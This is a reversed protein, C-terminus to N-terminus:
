LLKKSQCIVGAKYQQCQESSVGNQTQNHSCDFIRNEIGQCKSSFLRMPYESYRISGAVAISGLILIEKIMFSYINIIGYPSFGLQRCIVTADNDDWEEGCVTSWVGRICVEVEGILHSSTGQLRVSGHACSGIRVILLQKM